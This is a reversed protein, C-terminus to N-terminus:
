RANRPQEGRGTTRPQIAAWLNNIDETAVTGTHAYVIEGADNVALLAPVKSLRLVKRLREDRMVLVDPALGVPLSTDDIRGYLSVPLLTGLDPRNLLAGAFLSIHPESAKCYPCQPLFFYLVQHTGPAARGLTERRTGDYSAVNAVPMWQGVQPVHVSERFEQLQMRLDRNVYGMWVITGALVVMAALVTNQLIKGM